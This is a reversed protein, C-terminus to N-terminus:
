NNWANQVLVLSEIKINRIYYIILSMHWCVCVCM